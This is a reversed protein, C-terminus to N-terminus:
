KRAPGRVARVHDSNRRNGAGTGGSHFAVIWAYTKPDGAYPTATWFWKSPTNPFADADIAPDHRTDDVLTLLEVRTPLRWDDHGGIRLAKCAADAEEWQMSAAFPTTQWELGTTADQTIRPDVAPSKNPDIITLRTM